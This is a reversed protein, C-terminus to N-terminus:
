GQSAIGNAGNPATGTPQAAQPLSPVAVVVLTLLFLRSALRLFARLVRGSLPELGLEEPSAPRLQQDPVARLDLFPM